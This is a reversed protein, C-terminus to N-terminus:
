DLYGKFSVYLHSRCKPCVTRGDQVAGWSLQCVVCHFQGRRANTGDAPTPESGTRSAQGIRELALARARDYRPHFIWRKSEINHTLFNALTTAHSTEGWNKAFLDVLEDLEVAVVGCRRGLLNKAKLAEPLERGPHTFYIVFAFDAIRGILDVPVGNFTKEVEVQSLTISSAETVTFEATTPRSYPTMRREITGRYPPLDLTLSAGIVQRAMMRVSVFFSFECKDQANQYTGRTAHAFHWQKVDGQKAVLPMRCSWCICGSAKGRPVEAVDVFDDQAPRYGFPVLTLDM